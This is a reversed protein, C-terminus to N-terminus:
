QELMSSTTQLFEIVQLEDLLILKDKTVAKWVRYIDLGEYASLQQQIKETKAVCVM